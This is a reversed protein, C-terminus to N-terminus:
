VNLRFYRFLLQVPRPMAVYVYYHGSTWFYRWVPISCYQLVSSDFPVDEYELLLLLPINKYIEFNWLM